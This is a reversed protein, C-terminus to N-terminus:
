AWPEPGRPARRLGPPTYRKAVLAELLSEAAARTEAPIGDEALRAYEERCSRWSWTITDDVLFRDDLLWAELITLYPAIRILTRYALRYALSNTEGFAAYPKVDELERDMARLLHAAFQATAADPWRKRTIDRDLLVDQHFCSAGQLQEFRELDALAGATDRPQSSVTFGELLDVVRDFGDLELAM